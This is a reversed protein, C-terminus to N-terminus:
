TSGLTQPQHQSVSVDHDTCYEVGNHAHNADDNVLNERQPRERRLGTATEVEGARVYTVVMFQIKKVKKKKNNRTEIPTRM